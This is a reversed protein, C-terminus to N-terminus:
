KKEVDGITKREDLGFLSCGDLLKRVVESKTVGLKVSLIELKRFYYPSLNVAIIKNGAKIAM